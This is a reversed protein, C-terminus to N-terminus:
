EPSFLLFALLAAISSKQWIVPASRLYAMRNSFPLRLYRSCAPRPFRCGKIGNHSEETSWHIGFGVGKDRCCDAAERMQDFKMNDCKLWGTTLFNAPIRRKDIPAEVSLTGAAKSAMSSCRRTSIYATSGFKLIQDTAASLTNEFTKQTLWGSFYYLKVRDRNYRTFEPLFIDAPTREPGLKYVGKARWGGYM